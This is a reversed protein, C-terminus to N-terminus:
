FFAFGVLGYVSSMKRGYKDSIPGGFLKVLRFGILFISLSLEPFVNGLNQRTLETGPFGEGSTRGGKGRGFSKALITAVRKPLLIRKRETFRSNRPFALQEQANATSFTLLIFFLYKIKNNWM